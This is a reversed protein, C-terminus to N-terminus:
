IRRRKRITMGIPHDPHQFTPARPIKLYKLSHRKPDLFWPIKIEEAKRSINPLLSRKLIPLNPSWILQNLKIKGKILKLAAIGTIEM